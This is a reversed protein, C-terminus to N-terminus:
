AAKAMVLVVGEALFRGDFLPLLIRTHGGWLVGNGKHPQILVQSDCCKNAWLKM